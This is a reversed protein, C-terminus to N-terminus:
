VPETPGPVSLRRVETKLNTIDDHLQAEADLHNFYCCPSLCSCRGQLCLTIINVVLDLGSLVGTIIVAILEVSM